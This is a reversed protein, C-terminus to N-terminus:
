ENVNGWVWEFGERRIYERLESKEVGQNKIEITKGIMRVLLSIECWVGESIKVKTVDCRREQKNMMGNIIMEKRM